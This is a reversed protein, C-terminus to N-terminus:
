ILAFVVSTKDCPSTKEKRGLFASDNVSGEFGKPPENQRGGLLSV